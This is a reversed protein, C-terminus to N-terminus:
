IKGEKSFQWDVNSDLSELADAIRELNNNILVLSESMSMIATDPNYSVADAIRKLYVLLEEEHDTIM